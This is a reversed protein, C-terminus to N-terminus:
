YNKFRAHARQLYENTTLLDILTQRPGEARLTALYTALDTRTPFRGLYKLFWQDITGTDATAPAAKASDVLQAAMDTMSAGGDMATIGSTVEGDTAPRGLLDAYLARLYSPDSTGRPDGFWTWWLKWFNYNGYAGCDSDAPSGGTLIEPAPQYPTYNYLAATASDEITVAPGPATCYPGLAIPYSGGAAYSFLDPRMTYVKFQRAATYVQNVFGAYDPDCPASDTCAYGMAVDFQIEWPAPDTILQEEKELTIILAKPSIGCAQAVTWIVLASSAKAVPAIPACYETGTDGPRDIAPIDWTRQNLCTYPPGSDNPRTPDKARWTDCVPIKASLFATIQDVTMAGPDFFEADSVIDGPDWWAAPPPPLMSVLDEPEAIGISSDTASTGGATPSGNPSGDTGSCGALLAAAVALAAVAIANRTSRM